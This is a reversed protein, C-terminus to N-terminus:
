PGAFASSHIIKFNNNRIWIDSFVPMIFADGSIRSFQNNLLAFRKIDSPSFFISSHKSKIHHQNGKIIFASSHIHSFTSESIQFRETIDLDYFSRSPLTEEFTTNTIDFV